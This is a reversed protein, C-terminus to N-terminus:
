LRYPLFSRDNSFPYKWEVIKICLRRFPNDLKLCFLARPPRINGIPQKKQNRKKNMSTSTSTTAELAAKWANSLPKKAEKSESDDTKPVATFPSSNPINGTFYTGASATPSVNNSLGILFLFLSLFPKTFKTYLYISDLVM